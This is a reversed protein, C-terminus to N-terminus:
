SKTQRTMFGYFRSEVVPGIADHTEEVVEVITLESEFHRYKALGRRDFRGVPTTTSAPAIGYTTEIVRQIIEVSIRGAVDIIRVCPIEQRQCRDGTLRM